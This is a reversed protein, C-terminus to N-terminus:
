FNYLDVVSRNIKIFDLRNQLMLRTNDTYEKDMYKRIVSAAERPNRSIICSNALGALQISADGVQVSFVPKNLSLAERIINPSGEEDSTLLLFDCANIYLPVQDPKVGCMICLEYEPALEKIIAEALDRRKISTNSIDSFLVYKINQKMGLQAKADKKDIIKFTSYDVGLSQLFAKKQMQSNLRKPVYGMMESAVFGCRDFLRISLFSAKQNLWIKLKRKFSKSTKIAKAHIDTGHFTIFKKSKVGILACWIMLAYLGGFHVHVIDFSKAANRVKSFAGLSNYFPLFEVCDIREDFRLANQMRYMIPNGVGDKNSHQNSILLVKM